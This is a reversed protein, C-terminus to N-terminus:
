GMENPEIGTCASRRVKEVLFLHWGKGFETHFTVLAGLDRWYCAATLACADSIPSVVSKLPDLTLLVSWRANRFYAAPPMTRKTVGPVSVLSPGSIQRGRSNTVSLLTNRQSDFHLHTSIPKLHADSLPLTRANLGGSAETTFVEAPVTVSRTM